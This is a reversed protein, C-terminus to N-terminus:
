LTLIPKPHSTRLKSERELFDRAKILLADVNAKYKASLLVLPWSSSPHEPTRGSLPRHTSPWYQQYGKVDLWSKLAQYGLQSQPVIDAKNGVVVAPRFSLGTKYAEMEKLLMCLDQVPHPRSLDVVYMFLCCREIHKLFAHGLGMNQHANEVLGPIDLFTAFAGDSWQVTGLHPHLTTFPYAAIKTTSRTLCQLISSKGVNPAGIFGVDALTKLEVQLVRTEGVEGPECTRPANKSSSFHTNGYGGRGGKAVLAKAGPTDLHIEKLKKQVRGLNKKKGVRVEEEAEEERGKGRTGGIHPNRVLQLRNYLNEPDEELERKEKEQRLRLTDLSPDLEKIVTGVPVHIIWPPQHRGHCMRSRGPTGSPAKYTSRLDCLTNLHPSALFYIDAGRGGNGGAPPGKPRFAERLFSICGDGGRGGMVEVRMSDKFHGDKMAFKHRVSLSSKFTNEALSSTTENFVYSTSKLSRISLCSFHLTKRLM